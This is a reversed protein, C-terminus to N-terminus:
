TRRGLLLQRCRGPALGLDQHTAAVVVGGAELQAVVMSAVMAQGAADLNTVPEDLLWLRAPKLRLAALAIRRRQGTSLSRVLRDGLTTAGVDDLAADIASGAGDEPVNGRLALGFRLNERGTLDDKLPPQHGLYVFERQFELGRTHVRQGNWHVEGEDPELLGALTRLLTTKGAGNDGVVQLCHGEGVAFRLGAFVRRDGRHVTLDIAELM